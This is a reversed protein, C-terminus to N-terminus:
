TASVIDAYVSGRPPTPPPRLLSFEQREIPSVQAQPSVFQNQLFAGENFLGVQPQFENNLYGEGNGDEFQMLHPQPHQLYQQGPGPTGAFPPPFEDQNMNSPFHGGYGNNQWM